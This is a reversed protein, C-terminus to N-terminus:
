LVGIEPPWDGGVQRIRANALRAPKLDDTRPEQFSQKAYPKDILFGMYRAFRWQRHRSYWVRRASDKTRRARTADM